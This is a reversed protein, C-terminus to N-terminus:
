IMQKVYDLDRKLEKTYPHNKGLNNLYILYAKEFLEIAKQFDKIQFYVIALNSQRTAVTPHNEGFNNKASQLAIELLNAAEEYRGLDGYVNALDNQREAIIPSTSKHHKLDEALVNELIAAAAKYNGLEGEVWAYMARINNLETPELTNQTNEQLNKFINKATEYQGLFLYAKGLDFTLFLKLRQNTAINELEKLRKEIRNIDTKAEEKNKYKSNEATKFILLNDSKELTQILQIIPSVVSYLDPLSRSFNQLHQNGIPLFFLLITNKDRFADRRQNLTTTIQQYKPNLIENFHEICIFGHQITLLENALQKPISKKLNFTHIARNPYKTTIDTKVKRVLDYHNYQIIIFRSREVRTSRWLLKLEEQLIKTTDNM